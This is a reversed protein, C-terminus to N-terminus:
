VSTASIVNYPKKELREPMFIVCVNEFRHLIIYIKPVNIYTFHEIKLLLIAKLVKLDCVEESLEDQLVVKKREEGNVQVSTFNQSPDLSTM